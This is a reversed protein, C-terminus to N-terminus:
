AAAVTVSAGTFAKALVGFREKAAAAGIFASGGRIARSEAYIELVAVICAIPLLHPRAVPRRVFLEITIVVTVIM